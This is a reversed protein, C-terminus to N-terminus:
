RNCYKLWKIFKKATRRTEKEMCINVEYLQCPTLHKLLFVKTFQFYHEVHFAFVLHDWVFYKRWDISEDDNYENFSSVSEPWWFITDDELGCISNDPDNPLLPFDCFQDEHPSHVIVTYVIQQKFCSTGFVRFVANEGDCFTYEYANLVDEFDLSFKYNGYLSEESFAPSNANMDSPDLDTNEEIWDSIKTEVEEPDVVGSWYSFPGYNCNGIAYYEGKFGNRIIGKVGTKTTVHQLKSITLKVEPLLPRRRLYRRWMHENLEEERLEEISKHESLFVLEKSGRNYRTIAM